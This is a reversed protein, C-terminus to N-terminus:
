PHARCAARRLRSRIRCIRTRLAGATLGARRAVVRPSVDELLFHNLMLRDAPSLQAIAQMADTLRDRSEHIGAQSLHPAQKELEEESMDEMPVSPQRSFTRLINACVGKVIMAAWAAPPVRLEHTELSQFLRMWATQVADEAMWQCRLSRMAIGLMLPSLDNVLRTAASQDHRDRWASVAQMSCDFHM